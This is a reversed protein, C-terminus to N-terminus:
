SMAAARTAAASGSIATAATPTASAASTWVACNPYPPNPGVLINGLTHFFLGVNWDQGLENLFLGSAAASAQQAACQRLWANFGGGGAPM